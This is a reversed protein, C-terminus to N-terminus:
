EAPKMFEGNVLLDRNDDSLLKFIYCKKSFLKLM